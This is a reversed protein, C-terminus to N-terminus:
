LLDEDGLNSARPTHPNPSQCQAIDSLENVTYPSYGSKDRFLSKNKKVTSKAKSIRRKKGSIARQEDSSNLPPLADVSKMM